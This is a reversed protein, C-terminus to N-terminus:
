WYRQDRLIPFWKEDAYTGDALMNQAEAQIAWLFQERAEEDLGMGGMTQVLHRQVPRIDEGANVETRVEVYFKNGESTTVGVSVKDPRDVDTDHHQSLAYAIADAVAYQDEEKSPM